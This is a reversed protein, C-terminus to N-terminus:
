TMSRHATMSQLLKLGVPLLASATWKTYFQGRIPTSESRLFHQGEARRHQPTGIVRISGALALVEGDHLARDARATVVPSLHRNQITM